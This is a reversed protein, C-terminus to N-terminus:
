TINNQNNMYNKNGKNKPLNRKKFKIHSLTGYKKGNQYQIRIRKKKKRFYILLKLSM